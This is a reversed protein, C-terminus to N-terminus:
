RRWEQVWALGATFATMVAMVLTGSAIWVKVSAPNDGLAIALLYSFAMTLPIYFLAFRVMVRWRRPESATAPEVVDEELLDIRQYFTADNM